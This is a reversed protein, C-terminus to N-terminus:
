GGNPDNLTKLRKSAIDQMNKLQLQDFLDDSKLLLGESCCVVIRELYDIVSRWNGKEEQDAGLKGLIHALTLYLKVNTADKAKLSYSVNKLAKVILDHAYALNGKLVHEDAEAQLMCFLNDVGESTVLDHLDPIKVNSSSHFPCPAIITMTMLTRFLMRPAEKQYPTHHKLPASPKMVPLMMPKYNPMNFPAEPIQPTFLPAGSAHSDIRPGVEETLRTDLGQIAQRTNHVATSVFQSPFPERFSAGSRLAYIQDTMAQARSLPALLSIRVPLEGALPIQVDQGGQNQQQWIFTAPDSDLQMRTTSM